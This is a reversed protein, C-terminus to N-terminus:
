PTALASGTSVAHVVATIARVSEAAATPDEVVGAHTSEAVRTSATPPCPRWGTRPPPGARTASTRRPPSCPSRATGLTTLAQAQEFVRPVMSIEDRGNRFARPTSGMAEVM